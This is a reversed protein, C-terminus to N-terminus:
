SYGSVDFSDHVECVTELPVLKVTVTGILVDSRLFGSYCCLWMLRDCMRGLWWDTSHAHSCPMNKTYKAIIAHKAHSSTVIIKTITINTTLWARM